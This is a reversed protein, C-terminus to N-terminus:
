RERTKIMATKEFRRYHCFGYYDADVNKWAYYHATLECYERNKESISGSSGIDSLIDPISDTLASGCLIPTCMKPVYEPQKHCCM